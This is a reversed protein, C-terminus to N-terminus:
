PRSSSSSLIVRRIGDKLVPVNFNIILGLTLSTAKLYAIVQAVHVNSIEEAAKLEVILKGDVLFDARGEGISHGKYEASVPAQRVFQIGRLGLEIALADEYASELFGPGLHRHVEIAAGIVSHSLREVLPSAWSSGTKKADKAGERNM